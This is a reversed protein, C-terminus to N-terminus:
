FLLKHASSSICNQEFANFCFCAYMSPSCHFCQVADRCKQESHGSLNPSTVIAHQCVKHQLEPLLQKDQLLEMIVADGFGFGACPQPDGGFTELLRDYRGGGAIARLQGGRDHAEFVIGACSGDQM